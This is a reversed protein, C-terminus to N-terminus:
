KVRKLPRQRKSKKLLDRASREEDERTAVEGDLRMRLLEKLIRGVIPGPAMGLKVLDAGRLMPQTHRLQTIYNSLAKKVGEKGAKALLFLLVEIPLPSLLDFLDSNKKVLGTHIKGLAKLGEARMGLVTLRKKGSVAFRKVLSDLERENLKDTLALVLTLWREATEKTYLLEYWAIAETARQYLREAERDWALSPHILRLVGLDSLRKLAKASIEEELISKLEEFVRVGSITRFADLKVSNKLLNLTHKGIKFDFKESFRVARLMRTPDEVFSLNHLVRITREKLDKQAGFFDILEGFKGPNLSVALTNIIFDRRYLDLKLSSQEVTPLAGPREYYELRATAVDIKFGDPFIIVATKFRHHARVKAGKRRALDEAFVIGNGGEIVIDIDLNERRMLLDRVFGGVAYAKFGHSAATEGADKLLAHAWEPLREKMLGSVVRVKRSEERAGARLEEQLLKLLDTRTIVGVVKKDKVVPLLRQGHGVVKERIKEISTDESVWEVETTMYDKVPADGLGHYAAKDVVQRTIVGHIEGNRVVPAANIGYRRMVEMAEKLATRPSLTIPPFSMIEAATKGPPMNERLAALLMEKAQVLTVGKLTGSAANPHGGGGMAKLITGVDARPDRSRAIIHVRDESDVLLFLCGMNEIDRIKHALISIDGKYRELYAEAVVVEVGGVNYRTESQLFENLLSVEEPTLEKRLLDSVVRLDAGCSLLYSAAEFDKGTTSPYSLFGTDEYIGTMLITAEDSSPRIGRERLIHTLVTTNSGYQERVELSGRLDEPASPHHDYIHVDVGPRCLVDAFPGIRSPSSVDVLILRTIRSLDIDKIKTIPHPLRLTEIADKLTKELSGSFVLLAGPYLRSAAMMSAFTDFDANIHSTIVEM